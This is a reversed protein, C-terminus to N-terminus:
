SSVCFSFKSIITKEFEFTIADIESIQFIDLVKYRVRYLAIFQHDSEHVNAYIDRSDFWAIIIECTLVEYM